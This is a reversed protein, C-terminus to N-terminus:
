FVNEGYFGHMQQEAHMPGIYEAIGTNRPMPATQGPIVPASNIYDLSPYDSIYESLPVGPIAAQLMPKFTNYAAITVLAATAIEANKRGVFKGVFPAALLTLGVKLLRGKNGTKWDAMSAPLPLFGFAADIAIAGGAGILAPLAMSEVNGLFGRKLGSLSMPNRRAYSRRRRHRRPAAMVAHRRRRVPNRRASSRRRHSWGRKAALSRKRRSEPNRRATSKRRRKASAKRRRHRPNLLMLQSM